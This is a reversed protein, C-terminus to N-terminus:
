ISMSKYIFSLSIGLQIYAKPTIGTIQIATSIAGDKLPPKGFIILSKGFEMYFGKEIDQHPSENFTINM